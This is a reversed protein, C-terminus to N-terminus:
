NPFEDLQARLCTEDMQDGRVMRGSQEQIFLLNEISCLWPHIDDDIVGHWNWFKDACVVHIENANVFNRLQHSETDYFDIDNNEREFKLRKIAIAINDFNCFKSTGIDVMDYEFNLWVYRKESMDRVNPDSIGM